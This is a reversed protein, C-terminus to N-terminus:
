TVRTTGFIIVLEHFHPLVPVFATTFPLSLFGVPRGPVARIVPTV